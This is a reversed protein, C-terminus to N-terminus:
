KSKRRESNAIALKKRYDTVTRRKLYIGKELLKKIIQEDTLPDKKDENLIINEIESKIKESTFGLVKRPCLTKVKIIGIPAEIYKEAITRSITSPHLGFEKSLDKQSLPKPFKEKGELYEKQVEVIKRLVKEITEYRKEIQELFDKAKKLNDKIFNITARDTNPNELLNLYQQNIKLRPGYRTELNIIELGNKAKKVAFSPIATSPNESFKAGPYPTLYGRIFEIASKIGEEPINMSDAIYQINNESIDEFHDNILTFLINKLEDSEFNYEKIQILLCEKLNRAGVGEPEFSQLIELAADIQCSDISLEKAISEKIVEYNKIYGNSDLNRILLEIIEKQEDTTDLIELQSILHQSLTTTSKIFKELEESSKAKNEKERYPLSSEFKLYEIMKDKNEIDLLPNNEAEESIKEMLEAYSANLIKLTQLMRPSLMINLEANVQLEPSFNLEINM